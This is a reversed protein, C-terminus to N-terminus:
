QYFDKIVDDTAGYDLVVVRGTSTKGWHTIDAFETPELNNTSITSLVTMLLGSAENPKAHKRKSVIDSFDRWDLGTLQSFENKNTLPRVLESVLWRYDPDFNLIKAVIPATKPNTYVSVEGENQRIGAEVPVDWTKSKLRAIKLVTKSSLLYTVRSSGEGLIMLRERAYAHMEEVTQLSSFEKLSFARSSREKILLRVTEKLLKREDM